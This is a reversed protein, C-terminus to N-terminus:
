CRLRSIIILVCKIFYAFTLFRNKLLLLSFDADFILLLAVCWLLSPMVHLVWM